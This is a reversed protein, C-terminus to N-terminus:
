CLMRSVFCFLAVGAISHFSVCQGQRLVLRRHEGLVNVVEDCARTLRALFNGVFNHAVNSLEHISHLIIEHLM